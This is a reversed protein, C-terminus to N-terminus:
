LKRMNYNFSDNFSTTWSYNNRYTLFFYTILKSIFRSNSSNYGHIAQHIEFKITM